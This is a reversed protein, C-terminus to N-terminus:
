KSRKRNTKNSRNSQPSTKTTAAEPETESRAARIGEVMQTSWRWLARMVALVGATLLVVLFGLPVLWMAVTGSTTLEGQAAGSEQHLWAALIPIVVTAVTFALFYDVVLVLARFFVTWVVLSFRGGRRTSRKKEAKAVKADARASLRSWAARALGGKAAKGEIIPASGDPKTKQETADQETSNLTQTSM